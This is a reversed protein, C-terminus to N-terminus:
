DVQGGAAGEGDYDPTVDLVQARMTVEVPGPKCDVMCPDADTRYHAEAERDDAIFAGANPMEISTFNENSLEFEEDTVIDNLYLVYATLAYVEDDGLTQASGFPMARHIYDYVTSLYPWYSGITKEPRDRTLTDFGGALVPWRGRGEGFDGHCAACQMEFIAEGDSVTGRGVPLGQGDPRVDIDWAAIEAETATRGLGLAGGSPEEASVAAVGAGGAAILGALVLAEPFKSM